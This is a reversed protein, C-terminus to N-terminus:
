VASFSGKRWNIQAFMILAMLITGVFLLLFPNFSSRAGFYFLALLVAGTGLYLLYGAAQLPMRYARTAVALCAGACFYQSVLAATGCGLAGWSPILAGNLVINVVASIAVIAIFKRFLGKATLLSGYIHILFYAPLVGITVLLVASHYEDQISYLLRTIWGAYVAVFALLGISALLLLHRLKLVTEQVLVEQERHRSVYPLLFSAALFGVTNGADLLRYATAYVGAEFAGNPHVRELLFADLRNHVSMLLVLISFPLTLRVVEALSAPRAEPTYLYKRTLGYAVALTAYMTGVQLMLFTELRIHGGGFLPYLFPAALLIILLKDLVSLWADTTFRLHGTLINRYFLLFSAGAQIACVLLVLDWREIGTIWAVLAVVGCYLGVLVTKFRLLRALHVPEQIALQRNLMNTIGADALFSLIIALSLISFYTGYAEHGVLVQLQRDIGFIWLPKVLVNLLVLGSFSKLFTAPKMLEMPLQAYLIPFIHQWLFFVTHFHANTHV